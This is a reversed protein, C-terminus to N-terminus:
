YTIELLDSNIEFIDKSLKDFKDFKLFVDQLPTHYSIYVLKDGDYYYTTVDKNNVYEEFVYKFGYLNKWGTKYEKTRLDSIDSPLIGLSYDTIPSEEKYYGSDSITYKFGDRQLIIQRSIGDVEYYYMGGDRAMVIKTDDNDTSNRDFFSVMYKEPNFKKFFMYTKAQGNAKKVVTIKDSTCGFLILCIFLVLVKKM